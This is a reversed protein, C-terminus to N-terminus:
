VLVARSLIKMLEFIHLADRCRRRRRRVRPHVGRDSVADDTSTQHAQLLLEVGDRGESTSHEMAVRGTRNWSRHRVDGPPLDVPTLETSPVDAFRPKRRSREDSELLGVDPFPELHIDDSGRDDEDTLRQQDSTQQNLPGSTALGLFARAIEPAPQQERLFVLALSDC